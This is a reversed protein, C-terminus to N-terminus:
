RSGAHLAVEQAKVTFWVRDSTALRLESVAEATIDAAVGPMDVAGAARLGRVRIVGGGVDALEAVRVLVANRPSGHPQERYVSVAAPSFVAVAADGPELGASTVGHWLEGGVTRLVGGARITGRVLNLGAIQAGFGSRPETLVATVSGVEAIRGAELVLVRDALALVDLLDHTILVTPRGAATVTRRLVTRIAAAVGVDLGTFPEDVLLVEPDAALARAIAVRQAQGGSLAAPYRDALDAADVEGLVRM